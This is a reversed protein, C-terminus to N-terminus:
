AGATLHPMAFAGKIKLVTNGDDGKTIAIQSIKFDPLSFSELYEIYDIVMSYNAMPAEINVPLEKELGAKNFQSVVVTAGKLDIKMNDLARFIVTEPNMDAFDEINNKRFYATIADVEKIQKRLESKNIVLSNLDNIVVSLHQSYKHSIILSFIVLGLVIGTSIYFPFGWKLYKFYNM